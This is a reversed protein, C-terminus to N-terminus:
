VGEYLIPTSITFNVNEEGTTATYTFPTSGRPIELWTSNKGILNLGNYVIGARIFQVSKKGTFTSIILSDGDEFTTSGAILISIKTADISMYEESDVNYITISGATGTFDMRIECGTESDGFNDVYSERRSVISGMETVPEHGENSYIFEFSGQVSGFHTKRNGHLVDTFFPSECLISIQCSSSESFIEPENSEVYGVTEAIRNDTEIRFTLPKKIPFYKYSLLRAEEISTAHTFLAEIVINRTELRASNFIGGDATSLETLNVNAKVPGLGTISTVILGSPNNQQVGEILYEMSDGVYNTITIKKLM